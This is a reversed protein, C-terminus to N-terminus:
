VRFGNKDQADLGGVVMRMSRNMFRLPAVPKVQGASQERFTQELVLMARQLDLLTSVESRTLLLTM